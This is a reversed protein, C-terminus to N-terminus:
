NNWVRSLAKDCWAKDKLNLARMNAPPSRIRLFLTRNISTSVHNPQRHPSLAHSMCSDELRMGVSPQNRFPPECIVYSQSSAPSIIRWSSYNRRSSIEWPAHAALADDVDASARAGQWIRYYIGRARLNFRFSRRILHRLCNLELKM